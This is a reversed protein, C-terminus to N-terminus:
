GAAGQGPVHMARRGRGGRRRQSQGLCITGVRHNQHLADAILDGHLRQGRAAATVEIRLSDHDDRDATGM